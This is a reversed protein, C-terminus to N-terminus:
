FSKGYIRFDLSLAETKTDLDYDYGTQIQVKDSLHYSLAIGLKTYTNTDIHALQLTPTVEISQASDIFHRLGIESSAGTMSSRNTSASFSTRTIVNADTNNLLLGLRGYIDTRNNLSYNSGYGLQISNTTIDHSVSQDDSQQTFKVWGSQTAAYIFGHPSVEISLDASLRQPEHHYTTSWERAYSLTLASYQFADEAWCTPITIVVSALAALIRKLKNM